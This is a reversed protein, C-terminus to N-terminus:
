AETTTDVHIVTIKSATLFNIGDMSRYEEGYFVRQIGSQFILKACEMCPSHTVFPDAGDGSENSKALKAIANSEAHIVELKTSGDEEKCENPMGSPMGNFGFALINNEKVVISGVKKDTDHSMDAIRIALDMYLKDYKRQKDM